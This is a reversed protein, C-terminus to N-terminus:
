YSPCLLLTWIPACCRRNAARVDAGHNDLHTSMHVFRKGSSKDELLVWVCLRKQNSEEYKSPSEPTDSLWFTGSDILTFRIKSYFIAEAEGCSSDTGGERGEYIVDYM